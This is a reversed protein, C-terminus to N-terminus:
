ANGMQDLGTNFVDHGPVNDSGLSQGRAAQWHMVGPQVAPAGGAGKIGYRADHLTWSFPSGGTFCLLSRIRFIEKTAAPAIRHVIGTM